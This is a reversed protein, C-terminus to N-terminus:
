NSKKLEPNWVWEGNSLDKKSLQDCVGYCKDRKKIYMNGYENECCVYCFNESDKCDSNRTFNDIFNTNCYEYVLKKDNRAKKCRRWDGSKNAKLLDAAMSGRVKQIQQEIVRNKRQAKKRIELIKKRLQTRKNKVQVVADEKLKEIQNEVEKGERNKADEVEKSKLVKELCKKKHKEYKFKTMLDNTTNEVKEQEEKKILDELALEKKIAKMVTKQTKSVKGELKNENSLELKGELLKEREQIVDLQAQSIKSQFDDQLKNQENLGNGIDHPQYCMHSFMLFDNKWSKYFKPDKKSGCDKNFGCIEYQMNNSRVIICCHDKKSKAIQVQHLNFTFINNMYQEDEFLSLTHNNMVLRAPIKVPDKKTYKPDSSKFLVDSERIQCKIYRQPRNSFPLTKWIPKLVSNNKTTKFAKQTISVGPCRQTHCSRTRVSKGKCPKGGAKHPVCMWQQFRKGGGCKLSCQSWDNLLIWYGDKLPNAGKGTYKEIAPAPKISLTTISMKKIRPHKISEKIGFSKQRLIRMKILMDLLSQKPNLKDTCVIWHEAMGTDRGSYYTESFYAPLITSVQICKGEDFNGLDQVGGKYKADEPVPSIIDISLHAVTRMIQHDRSSMINLGNKMLKAYFNYKTKAMLTGKKDSKKIDSKLTKQNFYQSNIFFANPKNVKEGLNYHFYKIWGQWYIKAKPIRLSPDREKIKGSLYDSYMQDSDKRNRMMEVELSRFQSIISITIFFLILICKQKM